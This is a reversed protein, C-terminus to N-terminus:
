VLPSSMGGPSGAASASATSASVRCSSRRRAIAALPRSTARRLKSRDTVLRRMSSSNRSAIPHSRPGPGHRLLGPALRGTVEHEDYQGQEERRVIEADHTQGCGPDRQEAHEALQAEAGGQHLAALNIGAVEAGGEHQVKDGPRHEGEDANRNGPREGPKKM